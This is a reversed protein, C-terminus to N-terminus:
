AEHEEGDAELLAIPEGDGYESWLKKEFLKPNGAIVHNAARLIAGTSRYNQELPIVKLAPYDQPLRKLNEITAGRWGYISQDDD